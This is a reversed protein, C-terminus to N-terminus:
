RQSGCDRRTIDNEIVEQAYYIEIARVEDAGSIFRHYENPRVTTFDGADLETVDILPYDNKHVEIQLRGKQVFFANWKFQHAHLSCQANPKIILRHVEIFPTRLM